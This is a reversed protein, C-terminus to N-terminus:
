PLPTTAPAYGLKSATAGAPRDSTELAVIGALGTTLTQKGVRVTANAVPEGADTVKFVYRTPGTPPGSASIALSLGPLVHQHWFSANARTEFSAVLDLPGLGGDGQLHDIAQAGRRPSIKRVAGLRTVARNTRAAFIAGDRSWALWLRGQPAAALVVNAANAAPVELVLKRVGAHLLSVGRVKPYGAAYALYVGPAGSRAGFAVRGDPLLARNRKKNASATAFVKPRTPGGRDVAQVYIGMARPASSAWAVYAQGTTQDVAPQVGSACCGGVGLAAGAAAPELGYRYRVQSGASWAAVPTGDRTTAAGVAPAVEGVAHALPEAGVTWEGSASAAVLKLDAATGDSARVFVFGDLAGSAAPTLAPSGPEALGPAAPGLGLSVGDPSIRTHWLAAKVAGRRLWVVHLVGDPTRALGTEDGSDVRGKSVPTWRGPPGAEAITTVVLTALAAIALARRM